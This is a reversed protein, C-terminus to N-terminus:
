DDYPFCLHQKLTCSGFCGTTRTSTLCSPANGAKLRPSIFTKYHKYFVMQQDLPIPGSPWPMPFWERQFVGERRVDLPVRIDGRTLGTDSVTKIDKIFDGGVVTLEAAIPEVRLCLDGFSPLGGFTGASPMNVKTMVAVATLDVCQNRDLAPNRSYKNRNYNDIWLVARGGRLEEHLITNAESVQAAVTPQRHRAMGSGRLSRRQVQTIYGFTAEQERHGRKAARPACATLMAKYLWLLNPLWQLVWQHHHRNGWVSRLEALTHRSRDRIRLAMAFEVFAKAKGGNIANDVIDEATSFLPLEKILIGLEKGLATYDV